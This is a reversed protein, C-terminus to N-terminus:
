QLGKRVGNCVRDQSSRRLGARAGGCPSNTARAPTPTQPRHSAGKRKLVCLGQCWGQRLIGFVVAFSCCSLDFSLPWPSPKISQQQAGLTSSRSWVASRHSRPSALPTKHHNIIVILLLPLHTLPAHTRPLPLLCPLSWAVNQTHLECCPGLSVCEQAVCGQCVCVWGWVGLGGVAVVLDLADVRAVRQDGLVLSLSSLEVGLGLAEGERWVARLRKGKTIGAASLDSFHVRM